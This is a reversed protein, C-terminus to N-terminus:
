RNCSVGYNVCIPFKPKFIYSRAIRNELDGWNQSTMMWNDFPVIKFSSEWICGQNKCLHKIIFNVCHLATIQLKIYRCQLRSISFFLFKFALFNTQNCVNSPFFILYAGWQGLTREPHRFDRLSHDSVTEFMISKGRFSIQYMKKTARSEQICLRPFDPVLWHQYRNSQRGM